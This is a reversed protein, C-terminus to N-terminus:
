VVGARLDEILDEMAQLIRPDVGSLMRRRDVWERVRAHAPRAESTARTSGDVGDDILEGQTGDMM